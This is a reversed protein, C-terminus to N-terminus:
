RNTGKSCTDFDCPSTELVQVDPNNGNSRNLFFKVWAFNNTTDLEIWNGAPNALHTLYYIGEPLGTVPLSEGDTSHHYQDAWGPTIGQVDANCAFYTRTQSTQTDFLPEYDILCCLLPCPTV